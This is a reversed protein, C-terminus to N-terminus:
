HIFLINGHVQYRIRQDSFCLRIIVEQIHAILDEVSIPLRLNKDSLIFPLLKEVEDQGISKKRILETKVEVVKKKEEVLCCHLFVGFHHAVYCGM